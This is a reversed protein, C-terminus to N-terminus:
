ISYAALISCKWHVARLPVAERSSLGHLSLKKFVTEQGNVIFAAEGRAECEKRWRHILGPGTFPDAYGSVPAFHNLKQDQRQPENWASDTDSQAVSM